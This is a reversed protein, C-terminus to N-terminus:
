RGIRFGREVSRTRERRTLQQALGLRRQVEALRRRAAERAAREAGNQPDRGFANRTDKVGNELRYGEIDQVGRNWTKAKTPDAPRQGLEKVIYSPPEIRAAALAQASHTDLLHSAIERERRADTGPREMQELKAVNEALRERLLEERENAYPLKALTAVVSFGGRRGGRM